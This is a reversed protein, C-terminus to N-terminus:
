KDGKAARTRTEAEKIRLNAQSILEDRKKQESIRRTECKGMAKAEEYNARSEAKVAAFQAKDVEHQAKASEKMDVFSNKFFEVIKSM